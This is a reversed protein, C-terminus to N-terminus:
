VGRDGLVIRVLPEITRIEAIPAAVQAAVVTGPMAMATANHWVTALGVRDTGILDYASGTVFLTRERPVDLELLALEYPRPHPKYFGAREATVVTDFRVGTREVARQGLAESCNTVVGTKVKDKLRLLTETVQPWPQLEDSRRALEASWSSPYGCEHAAEAVMTEYDRYRGQAYTRELYAGRWRRGAEPSGAVESWLAWSDVLATLLDFLVADYRLATM